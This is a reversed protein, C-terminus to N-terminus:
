HAMGHHHQNGAGGMPSSASAAPLVMLTKVPVNIAQTVSKGEATRLKLTLSLLEGDKLADPLQTLMLHHGGPRLMVAQGAPLALSAIARMRMVNGDMTMEHLEPVGARSMSFGELTLPQRATLVMFGGTATQGKVMPRVWASEVQVWPAPAPASMAQKSATDSPGAAHAISGGLSLSLALAALAVPSLLRISRSM